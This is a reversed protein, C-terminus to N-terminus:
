ASPGPVAARGTGYILVQRADMNRAGVASRMFEPLDSGIVEAARRALELAQENDLDDPVHGPAWLHAPPEDAGTEAHLVQRAHVSVAALSYPMVGIGLHGAYWSTEDAFTDRADPGDGEIEIPPLDTLVRLAEWRVSLPEEPGLRAALIGALATLVEVVLVGESGFTRSGEAAELRIGDDRYAASDLSLGDMAPPDALPPGDPEGRLYDRALNPWVRVLHGLLTAADVAVGHEPWRRGWAMVDRGADDQFGLRVEATREGAWRLTFWVLPLGARVQDHVPAPEVGRARLAAVAEDSARRHDADLRDLFAEAEDLDLATSGDTM